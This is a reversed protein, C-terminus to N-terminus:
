IRGRTRKGGRKVVHIASKGKGGKKKKRRRQKKKEPSIGVERKSKEGRKTPACGDRRIKERVKKKEKKKEFPLFPGKPDLDDKEKKRKRLVGRRGEQPFSAQKGTKRKRPAFINGRAGKRAINIRRGKGRRGRGSKKQGKKGWLLNRGKERGVSSEGKGGERRGGKKRKEGGRGYKGV